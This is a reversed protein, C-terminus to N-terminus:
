VPWLRVVAGPRDLVDAWLGKLGDRDGTYPYAKLVPGIVVQADNVLVGASELADLVLRELKDKDGTGHTSPWEPASPKLIRANRGTGYHSVPRPLTFVMQTRIPQREDAREKVTAQAIELVSKRWEANKVMERLKHNPDRRCVMSGKPKPLGYVKFAWGQTIM